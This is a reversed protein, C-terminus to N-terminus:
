GGMALVARPRLERFLRRCLHYSKWFGRVFQAGQGSQLGIAPLSVIRMDRASKVAEQDVEKQSVLLAVECGWRQLVDAVALGPFLHGGTGGCAIAIWSPKPAPRM